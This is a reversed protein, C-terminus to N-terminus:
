RQLYEVYKWYFGAAKHGNIIACSINPQSTGLLKAAMSVSAYLKIPKKTIPDIQAIQKGKPGRNRISNKFDGNAWKKKMTESVHKCRQEENILGIEIAHDYNEKCTCWELNEVRNDSKIGNIHNVFPKNDPNPIFTAAILRHVPITVKFKKEKFIIDKRVRIRFYKSHGRNVIEKKSDAYRIKGSATVEYSQEYGAAPLWTEQNNM